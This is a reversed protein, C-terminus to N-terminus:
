KEPIMISPCGKFPKGQDKLNKTRDASPKRPFPLRRRDAARADKSTHM